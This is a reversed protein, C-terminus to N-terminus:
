EINFIDMLKNDITAQSVQEFMVKSARVSGNYTGSMIFLGNEYEAFSPYSTMREYQQVIVSNTLCYNDIKVVDNFQRNYVSHVLYLSSGKKFFTPRSGDDPIVCEELVSFDSLSLKALVMLTRGQPVINAPLQPDAQRKQRCALYLYGNHIALAEEMDGDVSVTIDPITALEWSTFDLTRFIPIKKWLSFKGIAMYYYGTSSDYAISCNPNFYINEYYPSYMASDGLTNFYETMTKCNMAVTNGGLEVTPVRYNSIVGTAMDLDCIVLSFFTDSGIAAQSVIHAVGNSKAIINPVGTGYEGITLSGYTQNEKFFDNSSIISLQDGSTDLTILRTFTHTNRGPSDATNDKNASTVVFAKEGTKYLCVTSDHTKVDGNQALDIMYDQIIKSTKLTNIYNYMVSNIRRMTSNFYWAVYDDKDRALSHASLWNLVQDTDVDVNFNVNQLNQIATENAESVATNLAIADANDEIDQQMQEIVGGSISGVREELSKLLNIGNLTLESPTRNNGSNDFLVVILYKADSPMTINVDNIATVRGNYGTANDLSDVTPATYSKVVAYYVATSSSNKKMTIIDGGKVCVFACKGNENLAYTKDSGLAVNYTIGKYGFVEQLLNGESLVIANSTVSKINTFSVDSNPKVGNIEEHLSAIEKKFFSQLSESYDRENIIVKKPTYDTGLNNIVIVLYHADSPATFTVAQVITQRGNYGTANDLTTNPIFTNVVAFYCTTNPTITISDEPTINLVIYRSSSDGSQIYTKDSGMRGNYTLVSNIGFLEQNVNNFCKGLGNSEVIDRSNLDPTSIVGQWNDVNTFDANATSTGMYRYQIYKNDSTLVFKISMGGSRINTPILTSLNADSLLASLSAFTQNNNHASVDYAGGDLKLKEFVAGSTIPNASNQTISADFTFLTESSWTGNWKLISLGAQLTTAGFNSYTGAQGALYFVNQDPTGPNTSPIAVGMFLYGAGLSNVMATLTQNLVTGTIEQQGNAKIVTDIAAKLNAYNAM